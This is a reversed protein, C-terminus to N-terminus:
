REIDDETMITKMRENGAPTTGHSMDAEACHGRAGERWSGRQVTKSWQRTEDCDRCPPDRQLALPNELYYKAWRKAVLRKMILSRNRRPVGRWSAVGGRRGLERAAPLPAKLFKRILRYPKIRKRGKRPRAMRSRYCYKAQTTLPASRISAACSAVMFRASSIRERRQRKERRAVRQVSGTSTTSMAPHVAASVSVARSSVMAFSRRSLARASERRM